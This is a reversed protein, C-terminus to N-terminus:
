VGSAVDTPQNVNSVARPFAHLSHLPCLLTHSLPAPPPSLVAGTGVAQNDNNKGGTMYLFDGLAACSPSSLPSPMKAVTKWVDTLPNYCEITDLRQSGDYGYAMYLLDGLMDKSLGYFNAEHHFSKDELPWAGSFYRDRLWNLICAFHTPDRDIFINGEEDRDVPFRDNVLGEFFTGEANEFTSKRTTFIKGGVNVRILSMSNEAAQVKPSLAQIQQNLSKNSELLFSLKTKVDKLETSVEEQKAAVAVVGASNGAGAGGGKDKQQSRLLGDVLNKAEKAVEVAGDVRESMRMATIVDTVTAPSNPFQPHYNRAQHTPFPSLMGGEAELQV